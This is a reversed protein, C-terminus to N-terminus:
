LDEIHNQSHSHLITLKAIRGGDEGKGGRRDRRETFVEVDGEIMEQIETVKMINELTPTLCISLLHPFSFSFCVLKESKTM